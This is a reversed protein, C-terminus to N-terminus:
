KNKAKKVPKEPQQEKARALAAPADGDAVGVVSEVDDLVLGGWLVYLAKLADETLPLKEKTLQAVARHYKRISGESIWPYM